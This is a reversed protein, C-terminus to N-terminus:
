PNLNKESIKENKVFNTQETGLHIKSSHGLKQILSRREVKNGFVLLMESIPNRLSTNMTEAPEPVHPRFPGAERHSRRCSILNSEWQM